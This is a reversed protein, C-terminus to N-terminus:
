SLAGVVNDQSHGVSMKERAGRGSSNSNTSRLLLLTDNSGTKRRGKEMAVVIGVDVSSNKL